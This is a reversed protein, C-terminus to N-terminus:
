PPNLREFCRRVADLQAPTDVGIEASAVAGVAIRYGAAMWRLQELDESRDLETPPLAGLAALVGPQFGYIGLHRLWPGRYPVAARSFYLAYGSRDVVVKVIDPDTAVEISTCLTGIPAGGALLEAVRAIHEPDVLPQDGQVNVVQCDPFKAAIQAVRATGNDAPGTLIAEGGLTEIVSVVEPHDTAVIVRDIATCQRVREWVRAILPKGAVDALIKGPLRQSSWRAPIVAIVAM